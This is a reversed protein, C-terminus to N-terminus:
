EYVITINVANTILLIGDLLISTYDSFTITKASADFVYNTILKKM